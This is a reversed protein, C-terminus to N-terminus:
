GPNKATLVGTMLDPFGGGLCETLDSEILPRTPSVFAEVDKVPRNALVLHIATAELHQLDSVPM